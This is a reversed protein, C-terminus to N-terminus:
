RPTESLRRALSPHWCFCIPRQMYSRNQAFVALFQGAHWLFFLFGFIIVKIAFCFFGVRLIIMFLGLFFKYVMQVPWRKVNTHWLWSHGFERGWFRRNRGYDGKSWYLTYPLFRRNQPRSNPWLQSQTVLTFVGSSCITQLFFPVRLKIM